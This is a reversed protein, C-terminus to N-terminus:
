STNCNKRHSSQFDVNGFPRIAAAEQSKGTGQDEVRKEVKLTKYPLLVGIQNDIQGANRVHIRGAQARNEPCKSRALPIIVLKAQDVNRIANPYQELYGVYIRHERQEGAYFSCFALGRGRLKLLLEPPRHGEHTPPPDRTDM